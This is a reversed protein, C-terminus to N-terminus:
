GVTLRHHIAYATADARGQAGIKRYIHEIHREVTRPSLVLREAIARTSRGAALLGLM